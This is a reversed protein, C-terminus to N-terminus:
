CNRSRGTTPSISHWARGSRRGDRVKQEGTLRDALKPSVSILRINEHEAISLM